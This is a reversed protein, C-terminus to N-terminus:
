IKSFKVEPLAKKIKQLNEKEIEIVDDTLFADQEIGMKRVLMDYVKDYHKIDFKVRM